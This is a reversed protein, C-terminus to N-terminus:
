EGRWKKVEQLYQRPVDEIVERRGLYVRGTHGDLTIADGEEIVHDGIRGRRGTIALERCGVICVKNLQRAVVAAHSTRGGLATLTGASAALGAIDDTSIDPRILIPSRGARSCKVTEEPDFLAEGVAVGPSAPVGIGIPTSDGEGLALRVL